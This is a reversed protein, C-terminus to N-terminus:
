YELNLKSKKNMDLIYSKLNNILETPEIQKTTEPFRNNLEETREFDFCSVLIDQIMSKLIHEKSTVQKLEFLEGELEQIYELLKKVEVNELLSPNRRFLEKTNIM